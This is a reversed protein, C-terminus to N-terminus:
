LPWNSRGWAALSTFGSGGAMVNDKEITWWLFDIEEEGSVVGVLRPDNGWWAFMPGGSDGPTLDATESELEEGGNSDGDTDNVTIGGQFSPRMANAIAGPYGVISWFPQNNWSDSYGNYGFYGLWSGLPNYLRCVAWDYGTVNGQVDYGRADSVYSEVGAGHLSSGDYYAPVFRMWWPNDGWPVMHGATMLLRDGILAGTGSFGQSNFVRGVLGWPWSLDRFQWRDDAGFVWLPTVRRGSFRRMAPPAEIAIRRPVFQADSWAPRYGSYAAAKDAGKLIVEPKERKLTLGPRAGRLDDDVPFRVQWVRENGKGLAEVTASPKDKAKVYYSRTKAIEVLDKPLKGSGLIPRRAHVASLPTPADRDGIFSLPRIAM